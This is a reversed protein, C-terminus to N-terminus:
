ESRKSNYYDFVATDSFYKMGVIFIPLGKRGNIHWKVAEYQKPPISSKSLVSEVKNYLSKPSHILITYFAINEINVSEDPYGYDEILELFRLTRLSDQKRIHSNFLLRNIDLNSFTLSDNCKRNMVAILRRLSQDEFYMEKLEENYGSPSLSSYSALPSSVEKKCAFIM